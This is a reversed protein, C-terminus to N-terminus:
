ASQRTQYNRFANLALYGAGFGLGVWGAVMVGRQFRTSALRVPQAATHRRREQMAQDMRSMRNIRESLIRMQESYSNSVADTTSARVCIATALRAAFVEPLTDVCAAPSHSSSSWSPIGTTLPITHAQPHLQAKAGDLQQQLSNARAEAAQCRQLERMYSARWSGFPAGTNPSGGSLSTSSEALGQRRGGPPTRALSEIDWGSAQSNVDSMADQFSEDESCASSAAHRVEEADHFESDSATGDLDTKTLPIPQEAQQVSDQSFPTRGEELQGM